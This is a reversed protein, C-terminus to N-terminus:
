AGEGSKAVRWLAAEDRIDGLTAQLRQWALPRAAIAGTDSLLPCTTEGEALVVPLAGRAARPIAALRARQDRPLRAAHGRLFGIRRGRAQTTILFRGDFVSEGQPLPAPGAGRRAPEGAERCILLRAGDAEIRAGALTATFPEAVAIRGALRDLAASAPPRTQGAACLVLAGLLRRREADTRDIIARRDAVLEGARGIAVGSLCFRRELAPPTLEAPGDALAHRARARAYRPDDNAPDDIWTEGLSTLYNRLAARRQDLLPRLLFVGRGEPWAPSPSWLRPSPTSSGAARMAAAEAVDDATHGMLIVGAGAARAAAALLAHRAQRAAAPLGQAPKAGTWVLTRHAVGLRAARGAAFCAWEASASQLGHDVTLAVLRRGAQDAWTKALHLLALSDGGGSLALAVPADPPGNLFRAFADPPELAQLEPGSLEGPV